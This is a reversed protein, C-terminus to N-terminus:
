KIVIIKGTYHSNGCQFKIYYAGPILEQGLPISHKGAERYENVLVDIEEGMTNYIKLIVFDPTLLTYNIVSNNNAPSPIISFDSVINDEEVDLVFDIAESIESDCGNEGTVRVTYKGSKKPIIYNNTDSFFTIGDKQWFNGREASSFLTDGKRTVIPKDPAPKVTVNFMLIKVKGTTKRKIILKLSNLGVEKWYVKVYNGTTDGIIEGAGELTWSYTNELDDSYGYHVTDYQCSIVETKTINTDSYVNVKMGISSIIIPRSSIPKLKLDYKGPSQTLPIIFKFINTKNSEVSVTDLNNTFSNEVAVLYNAFNTNNTTEFKIQYEISDGPYKDIESPQTYLRSYKLKPPDELTHGNNMEIWDLIGRLIMETDGFHRWDVTLYTITKTLTITAAGATAEKPEPSLVSNKNFDMASRTLGEGDKYLSILGPFPPTDNPYKKTRRIEYTYDRAINKGILFMKSDIDTSYEKGENPGYPYYEYKRVFINNMVWNSDINFNERLVEQSCIVFSKKDYLDGSELFLTINSKEFETLPKDHGDSWFLYDYITYDVANPEWGKRDFLDTYFGLKSLGSQLSDSNLKGAILDPDSTNEIDAFSNEVSLVIPSRQIYFRFVESLTNNTTDQDTEAKAVVKYRPTVNRLMTSFYLPINKVPFDKGLEDYVKPIFSNPLKYMPINVEISDGSNIDVKYSTDFVMKNFNGVSDEIYVKFEIKSQMINLTGNNRLLVGIEGTEGVMYYRADSFIGTEAKAVGPKTFRVVEIDYVLASLGTKLFIFVILTLLLKTKM